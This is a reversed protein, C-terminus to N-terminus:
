KDWGYAERILDIIADIPEQILLATEENDINIFIRSESKLKIGNFREFARIFSVNIFITRGDERTLEIFIDEHM